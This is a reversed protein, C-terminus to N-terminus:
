WYIWRQFMARDRDPLAHIDKILYRNEETDLLMKGAAGYDQAKDGQWRMTFQSPGLDTEVDFNLYGQFHTVEKVSTITHVFYRKLLSHQILAQVEPPWEDLNRILAVETERKEHDLYRLSIYQRPYKVPMCRLAYVGGFTKETTRDPNDGNLATESTENPETTDRADQGHAKSSV